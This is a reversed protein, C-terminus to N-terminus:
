KQPPFIQKKVQPFVEECYGVIKKLHEYVVELGKNIEDKLYQTTFEVGEKYIDDDCRGYEHLFHMIGLLPGEELAEDTRHVICNRKGRIELIESNFDVLEQAIVSGGRKRLTRQIKDLRVDCEEFCLHVAYNVLQLTKDFISFINEYYKGYFFSQVQDERLSLKKLNENKLCLEMLKLIDQTEDLKNSLSSFARTTNIIYGAFPREIETLEEISKFNSTGAEQYMLLSEGESMLMFGFKEELVNVTM